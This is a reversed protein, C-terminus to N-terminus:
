LKTASYISAMLSIAGFDPIKLDDGAVQKAEM